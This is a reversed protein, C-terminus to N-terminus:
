LGQFVLAKENKLTVRIVEFAGEVVSSKPPIRPYIRTRYFLAAVRESLPHIQFRSHFNYGITSGYRYGNAL